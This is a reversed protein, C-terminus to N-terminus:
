SGQSILDIVSIAMTGMKEPIFASCRSYLFPFFFVVERFWVM